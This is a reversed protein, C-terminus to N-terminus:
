VYIDEARPGKTGEVDEFTVDRGIDLSAYDINKLGSRHFFYDVGSQEERIFGTEKDRTLRVITGQM